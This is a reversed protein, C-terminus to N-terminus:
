KGKNMQIMTPEGQQYGCKEYVHIAKKNKTEVWLNNLNYKQTLLFVAETGYGKGQYSESINLRSLTHGKIDVEATGIINKHEDIIDIEQYLEKEQLNIRVEKSFAEKNRYQKLYYLADDMMLPIEYEDCTKFDKKESLTKYACESCRDIEGTCIELSNITEELTRM